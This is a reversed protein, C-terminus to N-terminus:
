YGTGSFYYGTYVTWATGTADGILVYSQNQSLTFTTYYASTSAIGVQGALRAHTGVLIEVAPVNGTLTQNFFTAEWVINPSGPTGSTSATGEFRFRSFDVGEFRSVRQYSNDAAGIHIKNFGPNSGSLGSYASSGSGFTIYSNSGIYATTYNTSTITFTPITGSVFSDDVSGDQLGTWGSPPYAGGNAGFVPAKTGATLTYGTVVIPWNSSKKWNFADFTDFVGSASSTTVTRLSGIIGSNRKM